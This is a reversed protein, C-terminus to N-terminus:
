WSEMNWPFPTPDKFGSITTVLSLLGGTCCTLLYSLVRFKLNSITKQRM